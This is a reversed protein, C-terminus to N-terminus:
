RKRLGSLRQLLKRGGPTGLGTCADWGPRADYAGNNGVTIDRLVGKALKTYVVQNLFGCRADMAENIRAILAAWLPAAASTGGVLDLRKGNVHVIAYGTAPDALAAADPVGRGIEHPPDAAAPIRAANQYPPKNFVSSIGGGGAGEDKREENWVTESAIRPPRTKTAVLKTGGVAWVWPSSSPFDVHVGAREADGSGDDGSATCVTIGRSSASEFTSDLVKLAMASWAGRDDEAGGYSISAISIRRRDAVIERVADIWGRTSNTTFYMFIKAEPAVSGFLCLDLMIEGTMDGSNEGAETDPGPSNGPGHVVVDTISPMPLGLVDQFYTSLAAADYGGEGRADCLAFIAVNQGSGNTNPPYDYLRAVEPPYFSGPQKRGTPLVIPAALARRRRSNAVRRTDLGFVGEVIGYLDAPVYVHGSRGRYRRGRSDEYENLELGFAAEVAGIPAAVTVRRRRADDEVVKLHAAHAWDTVTRMEGPDAGYLAEFAADSLYRRQPPLKANLEALWTKARHAGSPNQRVYLSLEIQEDASSRRLLKADAAAPRSSGPIAVASFSKGRDSVSRGRAM